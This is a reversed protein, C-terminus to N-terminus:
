GTMVKVDAAASLIKQMSFARKFRASRVFPLVYLFMIFTFSCYFESEFAM